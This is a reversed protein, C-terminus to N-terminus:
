KESLLAATVNGELPRLLRTKSSNNSLVLKQDKSTSYSGLKTLRPSVNRVISFLAVSSQYVGAESHFSDGSKSRELDIETPNEQLDDKTIVLIGDYRDRGEEVLFLRLGDFNISLLLFSRSSTAFMLFESPEERIDKVMKEM